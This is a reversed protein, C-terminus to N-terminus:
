HVLVGECQCTYGHSDEDDAEKYASKGLADVERTAAVINNGELLGGLGFLHAINQGCSEWLGGVTGNRQTSVVLGDTDRGVVLYLAVAGRHVILCLGHEVRCQLLGPEDALLAYFVELVGIDALAAGDDATGLHSRRNGLIHGATGEDAYGDGQQGDEDVDEDPEPALGERDTSRHRQHEIGQGDDTQERQQLTQQWEGKLYVLCKDTGHERHDTVGDVILHHYEVADALIELQM